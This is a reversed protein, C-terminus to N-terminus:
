KAGGELAEVRARLEEVEGALKEMDEYLMAIVELTDAQIEIKKKEEEEKIESIPKENIIKIAM